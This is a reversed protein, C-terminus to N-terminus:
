IDVGLSYVSLKLNFKIQLNRETLALNFFFVKGESVRYGILEWNTHYKKDKYPSKYTENALLVSFLTLFVDHLLEKFQCLLKVASTKWLYTNEIPYCM